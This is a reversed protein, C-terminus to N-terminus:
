ALLGRLSLGVAVTFLPSIKDIFGKDFVSENIEIRDFPNTVIVPIGLGAGLFKDLNRLKASGGCLAVKDIRKRSAQTYYYAFSRELERTLKSAVIEIADSIRSLTQDARMLEEESLIAGKEEKMAEAEEPSINFEKQISQTFGSGGVLLDRNFRSIGGEVVNVNTFREGIDVLAVVDEKQEYNYDWVEENCFTDVNLFLPKLGAKKIISLRQDVFGKKAAVLLVDIKRDGRSDVLDGLIQFDMIVDETGFPIYEEAEYKIVGRLEQESVYPLRIYRVVVSTGSVAVSVEKAKVKSAHLVQRITKVTLEPQEEESGKPIKAMGLKNLSIKGRAKKLEVMKVCYQSIDLGVCTKRGFM